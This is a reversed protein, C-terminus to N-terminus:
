SLLSAHRLEVEQLLLQTSSGQFSVKCAGARAAGDAVVAMARLGDPVSITGTGGAESLWLLFESYVCLYSCILCLLLILYITSIIFVSTLTFPITAM